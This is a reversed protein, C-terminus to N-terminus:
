VYASRGYYERYLEEFRTRRERVKEPRELLHKGVPSCLDRMARTISSAKTLNPIDSSLIYLMGGSQNDRKLLHGDYREWYKWILYNDDLLVLEDDRALRYCKLQIETMKKEFDKKTMSM